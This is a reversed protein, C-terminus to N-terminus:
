GPIVTLIGPPVHLHFHRCVPELEQILGPPMEEVATEDTQGVDGQALQQGVALHERGTVAPGPVGKSEPFGVVFGLDLPDDVEEHGSAGALELGPEVPRLQGPQVALGCRVRDHLSLAEREHLAEGLDFGLQEPRLPLERLVSLRSGPDRLHKGVGGGHDVVEGQDVRHHGLVEIVGGGLEEAVGSGSAESTGAHAGPDAIAQPTFGLIKGAEHHQTRPLLVQHPASEHPAATEQGAGVLADLEQFRGNRDRIQGAGFAYRHRTLRRLKGGDLIQVPDM